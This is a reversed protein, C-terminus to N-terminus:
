HSLAYLISLLNIRQISSIKKSAEQLRKKVNKAGRKERRGECASLQCSVKQPLSRTRFLLLFFLRIYVRSPQRNEKRRREQSRRRSKKKEERSIYKVRMCVCLSRIWPNTLNQRNKQTKQFHRKRMRLLSLFVPFLQVRPAVVSCSYIFSDIIKAHEKKEEKYCYM